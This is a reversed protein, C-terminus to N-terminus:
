RNATARDPETDNLKVKACRPAYELSASQHQRITNVIVGSLRKAEAPAMSNAVASVSIALSSSGCEPPIAVGVGVVGTAITGESCAFANRRAVEIRSLIASVTLKEAHFLDIRSSNATIVRLVEADELTALMALSGAGVGLPLRQGVDVPISRLTTTGQTCLLCVADKDSRMMLYTTLRTERAIREIAERWSTQARVDAEASAALGLEFALPGLYYFRDVEDYWLLREETLSRLIRFTTSTKLGAARAVRKLSAGSRQAQAILRLIETARRISQAGGIASRARLPESITQCGIQEM